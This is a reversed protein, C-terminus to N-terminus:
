LELNRAHSSYDVVGYFITRIDVADRSTSVTIHDKSRPSTFIAQVRDIKFARFSSHFGADSMFAGVAIIYYTTAITVIEIKTDATFTASIAPKEIITTSALITEQTYSQVILFIMNQIFFVRLHFIFLLYFFVKRKIM